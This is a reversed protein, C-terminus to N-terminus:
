GAISDLVGPLQWRSRLGLKGLASSLHHEVTRESIGLRLAIARYTLDQLALSAVERERPTLDSGARAGRRRGTRELRSLSAKDGIQDYLLGAGNADGIAELARAEFWRWGAAQFLKSPNADTPLKSKARQSLAMLAFGEVSPWPRRRAAEELLPIARQALNDDLSAALALMWEAGDATRLASIARDLLDIAEKPEGAALEAEVRASVVHGIWPGEMSRFAIEVIEDDRGLWTLREDDLLTGIRTALSAQLIRVSATQVGSTSAFLLRDRAEALRGARLLVDAAGLAAYAMRGTYGADRATRFAAEWLALAEDVHGSALIFDARNSLTRVTLDADGVVAADVAAAEFATTAAEKDGRHAFVIGRTDHWRASIEPPLRRGSLAELYEEAAEVDGLIAHYSALMIAAYGYRQTGKRSLAIARQAYEIGAKSEAASWCQRSAAILLDVLKDTDGLESYGDLAAEFAERTKDSIGSRCLATTFKEWLVTRRRADSTEFDLAARYWRAADAYAFVAIASDGARENAAVAKDAVRAAGWHYALESDRSPSAVQKELDTAIKTHILMAEAALLERYLVDRITSHHFAFKLHTDPQEHLIQKNRAKRLVELVREIPESVIRALLEADFYRGIVAAQLLIRQDSEPM